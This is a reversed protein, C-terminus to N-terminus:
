EQDYYNKWNPRIKGIRMLIRSKNEDEAMQFDEAERCSPAAILPGTLGGLLMTGQHELFKLPPRSETGYQRSRFHYLNISKVNM